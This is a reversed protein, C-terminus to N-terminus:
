DSDESVAAADELGKLCWNRIAEAEEESERSALILVVDGVRGIDLATCIADTRDPLLMVETPRAFGRMLERIMSMPNVGGSPATTVIVQDCLDEMIRAMAEPRGADNSPAVGGVLILRRHALPGLSRLTSRLSGPESAGDLFVQFPLPLAVREIKGRLPMTESIGKASAELGGRMALSAALAGLANLVSVEGVVNLKLRADGMPTSVHVESGRTDMRLIRGHVSHNGHLGYTVVRCRCEESVVSSFADDGPLVAVGSPKIGRFLDLLSEFQEEESGHFDMHRELSNTLLGVDLRTGEFRRRALDVTPAEVICARSHSDWERRLHQQLRHPSPRSESSGSVVGVPIGSSLLAAKLLSITSSKGFGGTVGCTMLGKAEGLLLEASLWGLARVADSVRIVPIDEDVPLNNEAVVALAGRGMAIRAQDRGWDDVAVFLDGPQV